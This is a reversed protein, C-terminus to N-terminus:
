KNDQLHKVLNTWQRANYIYRGEICDPFGKAYRIEYLCASNEVILILEDDGYSTIDQRKIEQLQSM